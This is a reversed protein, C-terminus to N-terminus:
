FPLDGIDPIDDAKVAEAQKAEMYKANGIYCKGEEDKKEKTSNLQLSSNNNFKDPEANLWQLFNFYVKGNSAKTFASHGAKAKEIIETLCLSGTLLKNDMINRQYKYAPCQALSNNPRTIM